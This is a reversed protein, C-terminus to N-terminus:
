WLSGPVPQPTYDSIYTIVDCHSGIVRLVQRAGPLM